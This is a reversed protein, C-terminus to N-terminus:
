RITSVQSFAFSKEGARRIRYKSRWHIPLTWHSPSFCTQYFCFWCVSVSVSHFSFSYIYKKKNLIDSFKLQLNPSVKPYSVDPGCWLSVSILNFHQRNLLQSLLAFTDDYDFRHHIFYLRLKISISKNTIEWQVIFLCMSLMQLSAGEFLAGTQCQWQILHNNTKLYKYMSSYVYISRYM